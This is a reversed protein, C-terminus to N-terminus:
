LPAEGFETNCEPGALRKVGAIITDLKGEESGYERRCWELQGLLGAFSTAQLQWIQEDIEDTQLALAHAKRELEELGAEERLEAIKAKHVRFEERAREPWTNDTFTQQLYRGHRIARAVEHALRPDRSACVNSGRCTPRREHYPQKGRILGLARGKRECQSNLPWIVPAPFILFPCTLLDWTSRAKRHSSLM